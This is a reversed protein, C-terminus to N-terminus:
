KVVRLRARLRWGSIAVATVIVVGSIINRTYPGAGIQILGNNLEELLLAGVASQIAGGRGGMLTTGGLVAGSIAPFLLGDGINTAGNSLQASLLLGGVAALFGSIAFAAIKCHRVPLGSAVLVGEDGGIAYSMRGFATYNLVLHSVAVVAVALYVILSLSLVHSRALDLVLPENIQPVKDPFLVAAVGLGVFWTGLTVILSPMKLVANLVGNCLGFAVGVALAAAMGALGYSNDNVNNTVLLALTMSATAMVGEVSLDISGLIIVFTIGVALITPVAAAELISSLNGLTLFSGSWLHFVIALVVIAAVPGVDRVWTRPFRAPRGVPAM